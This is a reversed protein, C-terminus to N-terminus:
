KRPPKPSSAIVAEYFDDFRSRFDKPTDKRLVDLQRMIDDPRPNLHILITAQDFTRPYEM